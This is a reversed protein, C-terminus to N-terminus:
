SKIRQLYFAQTNLQLVQQQILVAMDLNSIKPEALLVDLPAVGGLGETAGRLIQGWLYSL